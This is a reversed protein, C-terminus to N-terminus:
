ITKSTKSNFRKKKVTDVLSWISGVTVGGVICFILREMNMMSEDGLLYRILSILLLGLISQFAYYYVKLIKMMLIKLM